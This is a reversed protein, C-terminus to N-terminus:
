HRVQQKRPFWLRAREAAKPAGANLTHEVSVVPGLEEAILAAATLLDMVAEVPTAQDERANHVSTEVLKRIRARPAPERTM